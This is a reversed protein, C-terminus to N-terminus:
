IWYSLMRRADLLHFDNLFQNGRQGMGIIFKNNNLAAFVHHTRGSININELEIFARIGISLDM